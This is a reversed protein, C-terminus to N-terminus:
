SNHSAWLTLAGQVKKDVAACGICEQWHIHPLRDAQEGLSGSSKREGVAALHFPLNRFAMDGQIDALAMAGHNQSFGAVFGQEAHHCQLHQTQDEIGKSSRQLRHTKQQDSESKFRRAPFWSFRGYQEGCRQDASYMID